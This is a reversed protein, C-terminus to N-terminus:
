LILGPYPQSEPRFACMALENQNKMWQYVGFDKEVLELPGM